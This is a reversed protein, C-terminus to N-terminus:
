RMFTCKESFMTIAYLIYTHGLIWQNLGFFISNFFCLNLLKLSRALRCRATVQHFGAAWVRGTSSEDKKAGTSVSRLLVQRWEAELKRATRM